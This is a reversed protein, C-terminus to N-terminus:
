CCQLHQYSPLVSFCLQGAPRLSSSPRWRQSREAEKLERCKGSAALFSSCLQPPAARPFLHPALPKKAGRPFSCSASTSNTQNIACFALNLRSSPIKGRLITNTGPGVLQQIGGLLIPYWWSGQLQFTIEGQELVQQFARQLYVKEPRIGSQGKNKQAKM